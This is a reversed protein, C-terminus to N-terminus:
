QQKKVLNWASKHQKQFISGKQRLLSKKIITKMTLFPIIAPFWGSLLREGAIVFNLIGFPFVNQYRSTNHM